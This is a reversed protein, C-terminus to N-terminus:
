QSPVPRDPYGQAIEEPSCADINHVLNCEDPDIDDASTIPPQGGSSGGAPSSSVPEDPDGGGTQQAEACTVDTVASVNRLEEELLACAEPDDSTISARGVPPFSEQILYEADLDVARVVEEAADLDAQTVTEDFAIRVNYTMTGAPRTDGPPAEDLCEPATAGEGCLNPVGDDGVVIMDECDEFGEACVASVAGGDGEANRDDVASTDASDSSCAAFAAAMVLLGTVIMLPLMRKM